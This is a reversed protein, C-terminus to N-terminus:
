GVRQRRRRAALAGGLLGSFVMVMTAPEPIPHPTFVYQMDDVFATGQDDIGGFVLAVGHGALEHFFLPTGSFLPNTFLAIAGHFTFAGRAFDRTDPIVLPLAVDPGVFTMTGTSYLEPYFTGNVTGGIGQFGESFGYTTTGFSLTSGAECGRGCRDFWFTGSVVAPFFGFEISFDDGALRLLGPEDTFTIIGTRIPVPEASAHAVVVGLLVLVVAPCLRRM